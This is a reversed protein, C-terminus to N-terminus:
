KSFNDFYVALGIGESSVGSKTKVKDTKTWDDPFVPNFNETFPLQKGKAVTVFYMNLENDSPNFDFANNPKTLTIKLSHLIDNDVVSVPPLKLIKSEFPPVMEEPEPLWLYQLTTNFDITYEVILYVLTVSAQNTFEIEPEINTCYQTLTGAKPYNISVLKVDAEGVEVPECVTSQSLAHRSGGEAFIAAAREKQDLTFLVACFDDSYDMYNQVMDMTGCSKHNLDCGFNPEDSFPTDAVEDDTDCPDIGSNEEPVYGWPHQLNMWHGTEHVLTRGLHYPNKATGNTGFATHVVVVGDTKPPGSKTGAEVPFQAYGNVGADSNPADIEPVVWINLYRDPDWVDRGGKSDFKAENTEFGFKTKQTYTRTIGTTPAGWPTQQALCFEIEFDAALDKFETKIKDIDDNMMRFDENLVDIQSQIQTDSINNNGAGGVDGDKNNHLVHVVIPIAIIEGKEHIKDKNKAIWKQTFAEQKLRSEVWEPNEKEMFRMYEDTACKQLNTQAIIINQTFILCLSLVLSFLIGRNERQIVM